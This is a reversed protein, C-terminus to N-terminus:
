RGEGKRAMEEIGERIMEKVESADRVGLWRLLVFLEFAINEPRLSLIVGGEARRLPQQKIREGGGAREIMRVIEDLVQELAGEDWESTDVINRTLLQGGSRELMRMLLAKYWSTFQLGGEEVIVPLEGNEARSLVERWLAQRDTHSLMNLLPRGLDYYVFRKEIVEGQGGKREYIGTNENFLYGLLMTGRETSVLQLDPVYGVLAGVLMARAFKRLMEHNEEERLFESLRSDGRGKLELLDSNKFGWEQYLGKITVVSPQMVYVDAKGMLPMLDGKQKEENVEHGRPERVDDEEKVRLEGAPNGIVLQTTVIAYPISDIAGWVEEIVIKRFEPTHGIEEKGEGFRFWTRGLRERGWDVPRKVWVMRVRDGGIAKIREAIDGSVPEGEDFLSSMVSITEALDRVYQGKDVMLAAPYPKYEVVKTVVFRVNDKEELGVLEKLYRDDRLKRVVGKFILRGDVVEWVGCESLEVGYFVFRRGKIKYKLVQGKIPLYCVGDEIEKFGRSLDDQRLVLDVIRWETWWEDSNGVEGAGLRKDSLLEVIHGYRDRFERRERSWGSVFSDFSRVVTPLLASVFRVGTGRGVVWPKSGGELGEVKGIWVDSTGLGIVGGGSCLSEVHVVTRVEEGEVDGVYVDKGKELRVMGGLVRAWDAEDVIGLEVNHLVVGGAKGVIRLPVGKAAVVESGEGEVRVVVGEGEYSEIDWEELSFGGEGEGGVLIVPQDSEYRALFREMRVMWEVGGVENGEVVEVVRVRKGGVEVEGVKRCELGVGKCMERLQEALEIEVENVELRNPELFSELGKVFRLVGEVGSVKDSPVGDVGLSAELRGAVMPGVKDYVQRMREKEEWSAQSVRKGIERLIVLLVKLEESSLGLGVDPSWRMVRAKEGNGLVLEIGRNRYVLAGLRKGEEEIPLVGGYYSMWREVDHLVSDEQVHEVGRRVEQSRVVM